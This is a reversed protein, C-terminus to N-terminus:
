MAARRNQLGVPMSWQLAKASILIRILHEEGWIDVHNGIKYGQPIREFTVENLGKQDFYKFNCVLKEWM